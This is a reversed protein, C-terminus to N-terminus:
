RNLLEVIINHWYDWSFVASPHCVPLVKIRNDGLNYEWTEIGDSLVAGQCGNDNPLWEYLRHGWVIVYDPKFVELLKFFPKSANEYNDQSGAMRAGKLPVQLYNYFMLHNWINTSEESDTIKNALAREFKLFTKMWFANDASKRVDLYWELVDRTFSAMEEDSLKEDCYHSEGLVLVKKGTKEDSGFILNGDEDFSIGKKYDDGVFPLFKVGAKKLINDHEKIM